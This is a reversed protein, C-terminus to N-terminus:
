PLRNTLIVREIDKVTDIADKLDDIMLDNSEISELIFDYCSWDDYPTGCVFPETFDHDQTFDGNNHLFYGLYFKGYAHGSKEAMEFYKYAKKLDVTEHKDDSYLIGLLLCLGPNLTTARKELYKYNKTKKSVIEACRDLTVSDIMNIDSM